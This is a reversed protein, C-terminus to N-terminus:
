APLDERDTDTYAAWARAIGGSGPYLDHFTDGAQAGLLEFVWGAFTAPKAGIVRGPDTLRPRAIHVLADRPVDLAVSAPTSTPPNSM